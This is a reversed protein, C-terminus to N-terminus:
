QPNSHQLPPLQDPRMRGDNGKFNSIMISIDEKTYDFNTKASLSHLLLSYFDFALAADREDRYSGIYTKRKKITILSQWHPGNRSVGIYESRKNSIPGRRSQAKKKASVLVTNSTIAQVVQSLAEVRENFNGLKFMLNKKAKSRETEEHRSRRSTRKPSKQNSKMASSSSESVSPEEQAISSPSALDEKEKHQFFSNTPNEGLNQPSSQTDKQECLCFKDQLEALSVDSFGLIEQFPAIAPVQTMSNIFLEETANPLPLERRSDHLEISQCSRPTTMAIDFGSNTMVQSIPSFKPSTNSIWFTNM